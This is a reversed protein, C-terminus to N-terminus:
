RKANTTAISLGVSAPISGTSRSAKAMDVPCSALFREEDDLVRGGDARGRGFIGVAELGVEIGARRRGGDEQIGM